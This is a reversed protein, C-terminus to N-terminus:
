NLTYELAKLREVAPPILKSVPKVKDAAKALMLAADILSCRASILADAAATLSPDNEPLTQVAKLLLEGATKLSKVSTM